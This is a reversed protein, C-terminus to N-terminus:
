SPHHFHMCITSHVHRTYGTNRLRVSCAVRARECMICLVLSGAIMLVTQVADTWIVATLGGFITFLAAILLLIIIAVYLGLDGEWKMARQIFLAGAYLDAQPHLPCRGTRNCTRNFTIKALFCRCRFHLIRILM